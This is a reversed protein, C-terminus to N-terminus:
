YPQSRLDIFPSLVYKFKSEPPCVEFEGTQYEMNIQSEADMDVIPVDTDVFIEVEIPALECETSIIDQAMVGASSPSSLLPASLVVASLALQSSQGGGNLGALGAAMGWGLYKALSSTPAFSQSSAGSIDADLVEADTSEGGGPPTVLGCAEGTSVQIIGDSLSEEIVPDYDYGSLVIKNGMGANMTRKVNPSFGSFALKMFGNSIPYEKTSTCGQAAVADTLTTIVVALTLDNIAALSVKM